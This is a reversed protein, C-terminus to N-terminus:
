EVAQLRVTVRLGGGASEDLSVSGGYSDAIECVLYLGLGTGAAEGESVGKELLEAATDTALGDGDDVVSIVYQDVDNDSDADSDGDNDGNTDGGDCDGTGDGGGTHERRCRIEVRDANAHTLANSVLNGFLAELLPGGLVRGACSEARLDIGATEAQPRYSDVVRSIVDQLAWPKPDHQSLESLTSVNDILTISDDLLRSATSLQDLADAPLDAAEALGLYGHAAHIKNKVDHRLLSHLMAERDEMRKRRTIDKSIVVVGRPEATEPDFVPSYTRYSWSDETEFAYEETIAEERDVVERIIETIREAARDPHISRYQRGDVERQDATDIKGDAVLRSLHEANAFVYAGDPDLMYISDDSAEVATAYERLSAKTRAHKIENIVADALVTYQSNPDGGKQLYRNAGLNLAESAVTERGEGTFMIFPLENTQTQRVTELLELGNMEPMQYDAIVADYSGSQVAEAAAVPDTMTEVDLRSDAESLFQKSLELLPADDDVHLVLFEDTPRSM